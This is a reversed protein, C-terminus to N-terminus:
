IWTEEVILRTVRLNKIRWVGAQKVYNEHYHGWGRFICTPMRIYDMLAWIGTATTESTINIEPLIVQHASVIDAMFVSMLKKMNGRGAFTATTPMDPSPRPMGDFTGVFDETLTDAWLDWNKTDGGRLYRAKLQHIADVDKFNQYDM